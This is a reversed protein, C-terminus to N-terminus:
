QLNAPTDVIRLSSLVAKELCQLVALLIQQILLATATSLEIHSVQLVGFFLDSEMEHSIVEHQVCLLARLPCHNLNFQGKSMSSCFHSVTPNGNKSVSCESSSQLQKHEQPVHHRGGKCTMPLVQCLYM